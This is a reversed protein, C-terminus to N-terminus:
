ERGFFTGLEEIYLETPEEELLWMEHPGFREMYSLYNADAKAITAASVELIPNAPSIVRSYTIPAGEAQWWVWAWAWEKAACVKKFLEADHDGHVAGDAALGAIQARADLYHKAQIDRRDWRVSDLCARPFSKGYKNALSKLDGIGRPKLCDIRAKKPIGNEPDRWFVSVENLGGVLAGALKPNKAMMASAIAINDYTVAPLAVKGVKAAAANAAKTAAAKEAPSMGDDQDPGRVWRRDFEAEGYLVLAHVAKGREQAPTSKDAPRRPNMYSTFWYDAPNNSLRHIDSSGLSPDDHYVQEDLNFYIGPDRPIPLAEAITSTAEM